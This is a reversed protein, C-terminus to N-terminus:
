AYTRIDITEVDGIIRANLLRPATALGSRCRFVLTDGVVVNTAVGSVEPITTVPSTCVATSNHLVQCSAYSYAEVLESRVYVKTSGDVIDGKTVVYTLATQWVGTQNHALTISNPNLQKYVTTGSVGTYRKFVNPTYSTTRQLLAFIADLSMKTPTVANDQIAVTNVTNVGIVDTWIGPVFCNYLKKTDTALYQHGPRPNAPKDADLGTATSTASFSIGSIM